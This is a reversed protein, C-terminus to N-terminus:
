ETPSAVARFWRSHRVRPPLDRSTVPNSPKETVWGANGRLVLVHDLTWVASHQTASRREGSSAAGNRSVQKWAEIRGDGVVPVFGESALHDAIPRAQAYRANAAERAVQLARNAFPRVKDAVSTFEAGEMLSRIRRVAGPQDANANLRAILDGVLQDQQAQAFAAEVEAIEDPDANGARAQELLVAADRLLGDQVAQRALALKEGASEALRVAQAVDPAASELRELEQEAFQLELADSVNAAQVETQAEVEDTKAVALADELELQRANFALHIKGLVIQLEDGGLFARARQEMAAREGALGDLATQSHSVREQAAKLALDRAARERALRGRTDQLERHAAQIRQRAANAIATEIEELTIDNGQSQGTADSHALAFIPTAIAQCEAPETTYETTSQTTALAVFSAELAAWEPANEKEGATEVVLITANDNM